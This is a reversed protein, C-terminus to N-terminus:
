SGFLLFNLLIKIKKFILSTEHLDNRTSQGSYDIVRKLWVIGANLEEERTVRSLPHQSTYLNISSAKKM